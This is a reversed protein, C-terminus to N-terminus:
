GCVSVSYKFSFNINLTEPTQSIARIKKTVELSWTLPYWKHSPFLIVPIGDPVTGM